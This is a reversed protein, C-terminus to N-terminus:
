LQLSDTLNEDGKVDLLHKVSFQKSNLDNITLLKLGDNRIRLIYNHTNMVRKMSDAHGDSIQCM